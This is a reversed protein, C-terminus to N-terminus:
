HDHEEGDVPCEGEGNLHGQSKLQAILYNWASGEALPPKDPDNTTLQYRDDIESLQDLTIAELEAQTVEGDVNLDCDALWQAQRTIGGESGTPFGNFFMHDGHITLAATQTGASPVSVGPVGDLECPGFLTEAPVGLNFTVSANEYCAEDAENTGAEVASSGPMALSPPPCSVGAGKSLEGEILYTLDDDVMRDFDAEAVDEHRQAGHAAGGIHYEIQWRGAAISEFTWLPLGSEAVRTLDVVHLDEAEEEVSEDSAFRLHIEGITLLYKGFTVDWGDAIDEAGEGAALGDTITDESEVAVVLTGPTAEDDSCGGIAVAMACLGLTLTRKKMM